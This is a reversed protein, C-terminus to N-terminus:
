TLFCGFLTWWLGPLLEWWWSLGNSTRSPKKAKCNLKLWGDTIYFWFFAAVNWEHNLILGEMQWRASSSSGPATDKPVSHASHAYCFGEKYQVTCCQRPRPNGPDSRQNDQPRHSVKQHKNQHEGLEREKSRWLCMKRGCAKLPSSTKQLHPHTHSTHAVLEVAKAFALRNHTQM